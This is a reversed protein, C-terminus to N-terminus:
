NRGRSWAMYSQASFFYLDIKMVEDWGWLEEHWVIDRTHASTGNDWLMHSFVHQCRPLRSMPKHYQGKYNM